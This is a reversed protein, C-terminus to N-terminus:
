DGGDVEDIESFKLTISNADNSQIEPMTHGQALLMKANDFPYCKVSKSDYDIEGIIYCARQGNAHTLMASKDQYNELEFLINM